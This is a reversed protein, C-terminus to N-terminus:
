TENITTVNHIQLKARQGSPSLMDTTYNRGEKRPLQAYTRLHSIARYHIRPGNVSDGILSPWSRTPAKMRNNVNQRVLFNIFGKEHSEVGLDGPHAKEYADNLRRFATGVDEDYDPELSIDLIGLLCYVRDPPKTTMRGMAWSMRTKVDFDKVSSRGELLELPIATVSWILEKLEKRTGIIRWNGRFFVVKKPALLEQLTWGRQFWESDEFMWKERKEGHLSSEKEYNWISKIDRTVEDHNGKDICCTDIWIFDIGDNRARMCALIIKQYGSKKKMKERGQVDLFEQFTVEESEVWRHSLIAYLLTTGNEEFETFRLSHTDILRRPKITM